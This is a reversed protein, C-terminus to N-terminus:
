GYAVIAAELKEKTDALLKYDADELLVLTGTNGDPPLFGVAMLLQKAGIFPKVKAKFAKNEMNITKFKEEEPNDVVNAVYTKLIKLCRGGDGGARYQSVKSIYDDIKAANVKPKQPQQQHQHATTEDEVDYQVGDPHYGEVGLKSALKGHNAQRDAKDKALEARLRAREKKFDDKEKKRLYAERKRQEIELQEKTKLMEKGMFRRQKERDTEEAKEAEEREARKAKLLEKIEAIKAAKEEATLPIVSERSEEFDSHGTKNAHLELNAMNSLIKGCENCKYSQAVEGSAADAPIPEDIDADDQHEMLWDVAGDITGGNGYLLGKQARLLTFGMSETLTKLAEQDLNATPDVLEKEKQETEMEVDEEKSNRDSEPEQKSKEIEMPEAAPKKSAEENGSTASATSAASTNGGLKALRQLRAEEPSLASASDGGLAAGQTESWQPAVKANDIMAKLAGMNVGEVREHEKGHVFLVYTPFARVKYLQIAEGIDSEYVIAMKMKSGYDRALQELQPKSAKCPGCWHASFTMCVASSSSIMEALVQPSAVEILTM